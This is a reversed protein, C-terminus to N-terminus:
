YGMDLLWTKANNSKLILKSCNRAIIKGSYLDTVNKAKGPFFVQYEGGKGVHLMFLRSNARIFVPFKNIYCHVGAERFIKAWLVSSTIPVGTFISQAGSPLKKMVIAPSKDSIYRGYIEAQPDICNIRPSDIIKNNMTKGSNLRVAFPLKERKATLKIGTLKEM